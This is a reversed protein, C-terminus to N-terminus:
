TIVGKYRLRAAVQDAAKELEGRSSGQAYINIVMSSNNTAGAAEQMREFRRMAGYNTMDLARQARAAMATQVREGEHLVALYGDYPVYEIGQAHSGGVAGKGTKVTGSSAVTSSEATDQPM